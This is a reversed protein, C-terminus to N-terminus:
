RGGRHEWVPRLLFELEVSGEKVATFEFDEYADGGDVEVSRSKKPIYDEGKIDLDVIGSAKIAHADRLRWTM